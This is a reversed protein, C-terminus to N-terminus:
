HGSGLPGPSGQQPSCVPTLGMVEGQETKFASAPPNGFSLHLQAPSGQLTFNTTM